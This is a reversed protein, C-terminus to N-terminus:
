EAGSAQAREQEHKQRHERANGSRLVDGLSVIEKDLNPIEIGIASKGPIPAIIRVDPTALAYAIDDALSLVRNVKTGAAVEVEYLTVTPGRTAGSVSVDVGFQRLTRDLIAMVEKEDRGTATSGPARRLVSLPPLRYGDGGGGAPHKAILEQREVSPEDSDEPEPM